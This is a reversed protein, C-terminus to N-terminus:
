AAGWENLGDRIQADLQNRRDMWTIEVHHIRHCRCCAPDIDCDCLADATLGISCMPCSLLEDDYSTM